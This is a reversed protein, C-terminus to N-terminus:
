SEALKIIWSLWGRVTGARRRRTVESLSRNSDGIVKMIETNEPLRGRDFTRRMLINFVAYSFICECYALQRKKYPLKLIGLGKPSLHYLNSQPKDVLGLYRAADAYYNSQRRDFDYEQSLTDKDLECGKLLECLNVVRPFVDAQPFPIGEPEPHIPTAHLIAEIEDNTIDTDEISYSSQRLLSISNYDRMERFSYERLVYIGNSYTLFIPKVVKRIRDSWVRYPYYLQRIIFDGEDPIDMKAEVISFFDRGEFAADIEIQANNVEIERRRGAYEQVYFSFSGSGMRGSITPVINEDGLFDAMIGSAMAANLAISESTINEVSLTELNERLPFNNISNSQPLKFKEYNEFKSILYSGRSIPLISLDRERFVRPLNRSHDIKAMLRPERYSRMQEASVILPMDNEILELCEPANLLSAWAKENTMKKNM